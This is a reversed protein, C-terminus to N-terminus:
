VHPQSNTCDQSRRLSWYPEENGPEKSPTLLWINDPSPLDVSGIRKLIMEIDDKFFKRQESQQESKPGFIQFKHEIAQYEEGNTILTIPEYLNSVMSDFIEVDCYLYMVVYINSNEPNMADISFGNKDVAIIEIGSIAIQIDGAGDYLPQFALRYPQTVPSYILDMISNHM